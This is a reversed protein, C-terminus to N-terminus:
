QIRQLKGGTSKKTAPTDENEESSSNKTRYMTDTGKQHNYTGYWNVLMKDGQLDIGSYLVYGNTSPTYFSFVQLKGDAIVIDRMMRETDSNDELISICLKKSSNVRFQFYYSDDGQWRGSLDQKITEKSCYEDAYLDASCFVAIVAALVSLLIMRKM